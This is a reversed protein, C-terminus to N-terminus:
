EEPEPRREESELYQVAARILEAATAAGIKDKIHARYTEITKLSLHLAKAIEQTSRGLGILRFVELERDTLRELPSIDAETRHGAVGRLVKQRVGESVFIKGALVCRIGEVVREAVDQKMIYGNAGAHLVREAYLAEDHMSMILIPMRSKTARVAKTLELGDRGRLSIDFVAVDPEHEEVAHLADAVNDATACVTLDEESEIMDRIGRVVIPHDDVVLVRKTGKGKRPKGTM